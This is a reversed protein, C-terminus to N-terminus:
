NRWRPFSLSDENPLWDGQNNFWGADFIIENIKLEKLQPLRKLIPEILMVDQKSAMAHTSYDNWSCWASLYDNGTSETHMDIGQRKMLESYTEVTNYFDLSHVHVFSNITKFSEGPKLLLPEEINMNPIEKVAISVRGNTEVKIPFYLNQWKKEIHGIGIGMERCWIDVIPIGGNGEKVGELSEPRGTFNDVDFDRPLIKEIQRIPRGDTGYFSYFSNPAQTSDIISSDLQYLNSLVTDITVSQQTSANRYEANMFATNPFDNYLDISIKQEIVIDKIQNSIGHLTVRQGNGFVTFIEENKISSFDLNFDSIRCKNIVAFFPPLANSNSEGYDNLSLKQGNKNYYVVIGMKHNISLQIGTNTFTVSKGEISSYEISSKFSDAILLNIYFSIIIIKKIM